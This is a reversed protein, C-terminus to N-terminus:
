LSAFTENIRLLRLTRKKDYIKIVTIDLFVVDLIYVKLGQIEQTRSQFKCGKSINTGGGEFSLLSAM